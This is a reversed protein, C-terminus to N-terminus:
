TYCFVHVVVVFVFVSLATTTVKTLKSNLGKVRNVFKIFLELNASIAITTRESQDLNASYKFSHLLFM